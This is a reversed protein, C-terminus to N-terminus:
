DKSLVESTRSERIQKNNEIKNCNSRKCSVVTQHLRRQTYLCCRLLGKACHSDGCPTRTCTLFQTFSLIPNIVRLVSRFGVVHSTVQFMQPVRSRSRLKIGICSDERLFRDEKQVKQEELSIRRTFQSNHIIKNLASAIRADLAEFNPTSIGRTSSSSRLEDMSDVLEVKKIWLMAEKLFQSCTCANTKFRIEVLLRQQQLSNTSIFIRSRCDNNTQVMIRQLTEEVSSSQMKPQSDLSADRIKIKHECRERKWQPHIFAARRHM